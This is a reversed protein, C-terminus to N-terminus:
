RRPERRRRRFAPKRNKLRGSDDVKDLGEVRIHGLAHDLGRFEINEIGAQASIQRFPRRRFGEFRPGHRPRNQFGPYEDFQQFAVPM